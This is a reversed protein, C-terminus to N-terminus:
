QPYDCPTFADCSLYDGDVTPDSGCEDFPAPPEPGGLFLFSLLYIPDSLDPAADGSDNSDAADLCDPAPGGNFLYSLVFVADSLDTEGDANADGRTFQADPTTICVERICVPIGELTGGGAGASGSTHPLARDTRM